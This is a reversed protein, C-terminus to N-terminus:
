PDKRFFKWFDRLEDERVIQKEVRKIIRRMFIGVNALSIVKIFEVPILRLHWASPWWWVLTYVPGKILELKIGKAEKVVTAIGLFPIVSTEVKEIPEQPAWSPPYCYWTSIYPNKYQYPLTLKKIEGTRIIENAKEAARVINTKVSEYWLAETSTKPEAALRQTVEKMKDAGLRFVKYAKATDPEDPDILPIIGSPMIESAMIPLTQLAQEPPLTLGLRYAKDFISSIGPPEKTFEIREEREENTM